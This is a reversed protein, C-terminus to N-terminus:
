RSSNGSPMRRTFVLLRSMCLLERSNSGIICVVQVLGTMNNARSHSAIGLNELPVHRRDIIGSNGISAWVGVAHVRVIWSVRHHVHSNRAMSVNHRRPIARSAKLLKFRHLLYYLWQPRLKAMHLYLGGLGTIVSNINPATIKVVDM